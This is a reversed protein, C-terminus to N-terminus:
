TGDKRNVWFLFSENKAVLLYSIDFTAQGFVEKVTGNKIDGYFIKDATNIEGRLYDDPWVSGSDLGQPVACYFKDTSAWSCKQPITQLDPAALKEGGASYLSIKPRRGDKDTLGAILRTGSAPWLGALGNEPGLARLLSNASRSYMFIYGPALGSPATQLAIKDSTIWKIQADLIPTSFVTKPNKGSSNTVVLSLRDELPLLYALSKGDPSWSPTRINQPLATISSTGIHIFGRVIEGEEDLYLAAARDHTNSWVAEFLGVITINSIKAQTKGTFDSSLLDGGEKKYFMVKDETKNLSPSVVPFDTLRFLNQEPTVAFEEGSKLLAIKEVVGYLANIETPVKPIRGEVSGTDSAAREEATSLYLYAAVAVLGLIVLTLVTYVVRKKTQDNM